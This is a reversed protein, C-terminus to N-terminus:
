IIQEWLESEFEQDEAEEEDIRRLLRLRLRSWRRRWRALFTSCDPIGAMAAELDAIARPATFKMISIRGDERPSWPTCNHEELKDDNSVLLAM